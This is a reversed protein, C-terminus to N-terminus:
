RVSRVLDALCRRAPEYHPHAAILDELSDHAELLRRHEVLHSVLTLWAELQSRDCEVLRQLITIAEGTEGRELCDRALLSQLHSDLPSARDPCPADRWLRDSEATPPACKQAVFWRSSEVLEPQLETRLSFGADSVLARVEDPRYVRLSITDDLPPDTPVGLQMQFALRGGVSLVRNSERLYSAVVPRPMHQFAVYAYVLDFEADAFASLDVGSNVRTEVNHAGALWVRSRAIMEDSVDVGRLEAFSRSLPRLVRGIGCGIELARWDEVQDRPLLELLSRATEEGSDAFAEDSRFDDTAIWFRANQSARRNWDQRMKSAIDM